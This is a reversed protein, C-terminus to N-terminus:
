LSNLLAEKSTFLDKEYFKISNGNYYTKMTYETSGSGDHYLAFTIVNVKDKVAKNDKMFWCDDGIGFLFEKIM